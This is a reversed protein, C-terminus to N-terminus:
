NGNLIKDLAEREKPNFNFAGTSLVTKLKEQVAPDKPDNLSVDPRLLHTKEKEAAPTEVQEQAAAAKPVQAAPVPKLEPKIESNLFGDGMKQSNKKLVGSKATNSTEVHSALKERIDSESLKPKPPAGRAKGNGKPGKKVARETGASRADTVRSTEHAPFIKM